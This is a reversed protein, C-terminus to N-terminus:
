SGPPRASLSQLVEGGPVHDSDRSKGNAILRERIEPTVLQM